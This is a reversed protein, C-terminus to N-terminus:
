AEERYYPREEDPDYKIVEISSGDDTLFLEPLEFIKLYKEELELPMSLFRESELPAYVLFFDGAIIDALKGEIMIGRNLPLGSMKGEENCIIAVEDEFPMWDQILGGVVTQMAKLEDEIEIVRAKEGVKCLVIRIKEKM